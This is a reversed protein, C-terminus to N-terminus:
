IKKKFIINIKDNVDRKKSLIEFNRLNKCIKPISLNKYPYFIIKNKNRPLNEFYPVNQKLSSVQIKYKDSYGVNM